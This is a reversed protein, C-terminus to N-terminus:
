ALVAIRQCAEFSRRREGADILVVRACAECRLHPVHDSGFADVRLAYGPALFEPVCTKRTM